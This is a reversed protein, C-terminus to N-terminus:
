KLKKGTNELDFIFNWSMGPNELVHDSHLFFCLVAVLLCIFCESCKNVLTGIGNKAVLLQNIDLLVQYFKYVCTERQTVM